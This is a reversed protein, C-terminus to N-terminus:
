KISAFGMAQEQYEAFEEANVSEYIPDCGKSIREAVTAEIQKKKKVNITPWPDTENQHAKLVEEALNPLITAVRVVSEAETLEHTKEFRLALDDLQKEFELTFKIGMAELRGRLEPDKEAASRLAELKGKREKDAKVKDAAHRKRDQVDQKARAALREKNKQRQESSSLREAKALITKCRLAKGVDGAIMAADAKEATIELFSRPGSKKGISELM